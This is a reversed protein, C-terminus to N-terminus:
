NMLTISIFIQYVLLLDTTASDGFTGRMEQKPIAQTSPSKRQCFRSVGVFLCCLLKKKKEVVVVM